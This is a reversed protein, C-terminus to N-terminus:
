GNRWEGRGGTDDAIAAFRKGAALLSYEVAARLTVPGSVADTLLRRLHADVTAAAGCVATSLGSDIVRGECCSVM